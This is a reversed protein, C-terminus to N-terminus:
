CLVPLGHAQPTRRRGKLVESSVLMRFAIGIPLIKSFTAEQRKLTECISPTVSIVVILVWVTLMVGLM